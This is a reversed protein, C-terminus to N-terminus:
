KKKTKSEIETEELKTRLFSTIDERNARVILFIGRYTDLWSPKPFTSIQIGRNSCYFSRFSSWERKYRGLVKRIEVGDDDLVYDTPFYFSYLSGFLILVSVGTLFGSGGYIQVVLCCLLLFITVLVAAVPREGAPHVRWSLSDGGEVMCNKSWFIFSLLVM